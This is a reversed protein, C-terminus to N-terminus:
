IWGSFLTLLGIALITVGSLPPIWQVFPRISSIKQVSGAVTGALILPSVQGLSFISLLIIGILPNGINAIWALLVALVPTTCPSSALGFALGAAIPSFPAPVKKTWNQPDPGEPLPLKVIGILNLGMIVAILAVIKPIFLPIQGFIKGLFGSLCGLVTLSIIIGTAFSLSRLFPKQNSQFGTLYAVTIPLLSISCPGLSTILGASFVIILTLPGPHSLGNILLRESNLALDSFNFTM